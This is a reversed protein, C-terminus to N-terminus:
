THFVTLASLRDRLGSRWSTKESAFLETRGPGSTNVSIYCCFLLLWNKKRPLFMKALYVPSLFMILLSVSYNKGSIALRFHPRRSNLKAYMCVCWLSIWFDGIVGPGRGWGLVVVTRGVVGQGADVVGGVVAVKVEATAAHAPPSPAALDPQISCSIRVGSVFVVSQRTVRCRQVQGQGRKWHLFNFLKLYPVCDHNVTETSLCLTKWLGQRILEWPKHTDLPLDM